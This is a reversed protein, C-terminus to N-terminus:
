TAFFGMLVRPFTTSSRHLNLYGDIPIEYMSGNSLILVAFHIKRFINGKSYVACLSIQFVALGITFAYLLCRYATYGGGFVGINKLQYQIVDPVFWAKIINCELDHKIRVIVQRIFVIKIFRKGVYLTFIEM